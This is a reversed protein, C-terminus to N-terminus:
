NFFKHELVQDISIRDELNIRTMSFLLDDFVKNEIYFFDPSYRRKYFIEFLTCALAWIDSYKSVYQDKSKYRQTYFYLNQKIENEIIKFSMGFDSIKIEDKNYYLINKPKIDGHVIDLDHLFKIGLCINKCIKKRDEVKLRVKSHFILFDLDGEAKDFINYCLGGKFKIEKSHLIFKNKLKTFIYTEVSKKKTKSVRVVNDKDYLYVEGEKGKGILNKKDKIIDEVVIMIKM